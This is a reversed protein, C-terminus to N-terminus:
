YSLDEKNQDNLINKFEKNLNNIDKELCGCEELFDVNNKILFM